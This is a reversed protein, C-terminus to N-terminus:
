SQARTGKYLFRQVRKGEWTEGIYINGKSDTGISHPTTMCGGAHGPCGFSGLIELSSRELIWVKENRGDPIYLYKQEPERSLAVGFVTGSSTHPEIFQENVFTGDVNFAQVRSNNRDALYVMGDESVAIGHPTRFQTPAKNPDYAERVTDDPPKGYAGWFRKLALTEGDLVVVRRNGYGDAIFIENTPVYEAVGTSRNLNEPDLSGENPGASGFQKIFTGDRTFKLIQGDQGGTGTLWVNNNHDVFVSHMGAPGGGGTPDASPGGPTPWDYGEGPGGWAQVVNGEYDFEIVHPARVCCEARPPTKEAELEDPRLTDPRHAIWIHDQEDANVGVVTGLIWNNPLTKPFTEDYEFYPVLKGAALAPEPETGLTDSTQQCGAITAVGAMALGVVVM